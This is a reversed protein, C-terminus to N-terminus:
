GPGEWAQVSSELQFARKAERARWTSQDKLDNPLEFFVQRFVEDIEALREPPWRPEDILAQTNLVEANTNDLALGQTFAIIILHFSVIQINNDFTNERCSEVKRSHSKRSDM